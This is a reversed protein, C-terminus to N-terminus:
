GGHFCRTLAELTGAPNYILFPPDFIPACDINFLFPRINGFNIALLKYCLPSGYESM